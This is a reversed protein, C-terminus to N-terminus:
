RPYKICKTEIKFNPVPDYKYVKNNIANEKAADLTTNGIFQRNKECQEISNYEIYSISTSKGMSNLHGVDIHFLIIMMLVM